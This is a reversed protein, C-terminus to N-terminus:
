LVNIQGTVAVAVAVAVATPIASQEGVATPAARTRAGSAVLVVVVKPALRHLENNAALEARRRHELALELDTERPGPPDHIQELLATDDPRTLPGLRSCYQHRDLFVLQQAAVASPQRASQDRGPLGVATEAEM